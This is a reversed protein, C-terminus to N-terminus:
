FVCGKVFILFTLAIFAIPWGHKKLYPPYTFM